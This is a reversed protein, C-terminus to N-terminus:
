EGLLMSSAFKRILAKHMTVVAHFTPCYSTPTEGIVRYFLIFLKGVTM